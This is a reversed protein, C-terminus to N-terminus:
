DCVCVCTDVYWESQQVAAQLSQIYQMTAELVAGKTGKGLVVGSRQLIMHLDDFKQNIQCSRAKERANRDQRKQAQTEPPGAPEQPEQAQSSSSFSSAPALAVPAGTSAKQKKLCAVSAADSPRKKTTQKQHASCTMHINSNSAEQNPKPAIAAPAKSGSKMFGEMFAQDLMAVEQQVIAQRAIGQSSSIKKKFTATTGANYPFPSPFPMASSGNASGSKRTPSGSVLSSSPLGGQLSFPAVHQQGGLPVQGPYYSGQAAAAPKKADAPGELEDECDSWYYDMHDMSFSLLDNLPDSHNQGNGNSQLEKTTQDELNDLAASSSANSSTYSSTGTSSSTHSNRSSMSSRQNSRSSGNTIISNDEQHFLASAAAISDRRLFRQSGKDEAGALNTKASTVFETTSCSQGGTLAAYSTNSGFGDNASAQQQQYHQHHHFQSNNNM